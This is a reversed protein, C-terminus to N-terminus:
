LNRNSTTREVVVVGGLCRHLSSGHGAVYVKGTYTVPLVVHCEFQGKGSSYKGYSSITLDSNLITVRSDSRTM